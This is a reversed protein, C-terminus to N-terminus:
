DSDLIYKRETTLVLFGSLTESVLFWARKYMEGYILILCPPFSNRVFFSFKVMCKICRRGSSYWKVIVSSRGTKNTISAKNTLVITSTIIASM